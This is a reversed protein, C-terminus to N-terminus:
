LGLIRSIDNFFTLLLLSGIIFLGVYQFRIHWEIPISSGKLKEVALMLLHWGDLLPIPLFQMVGLNLSIFGMFWLFNISDQNSAVTFMMSGIGVAGNLAGLKVDGRVLGRIIAFISSSFRMVDDWATGLARGFETEQYLYVASRMEHYVYPSSGPVTLRTEEPKEQKWDTKWALKGSNWIEANPEDPQFGIVFNGSRLGAKYIESNEDIRTVTRKLGVALGIMLVDTKENQEPTVELKLPQGDRILHFILRRGASGRIINVFTDADNVEVPAPHEPHDPDEISILLDDKLIGAREASGKPVCENAMLVDHTEFGLPVDQEYKYKELGIGSAGLRKEYRPRVLVDDVNGRMQGANREVKLWIEEDSPTGSALIAVEIFSKVPVHNVSILKDGKQLHAPNRSQDLIAKALPTDPPVNGLQPPDFYIGHYYCVTFAFIAFIINFIAGAALIAAKQGPRKNRYDSKDATPALDANMDDQGSMKVYGGIPLMSLVYVTGRWSFSFLYPGMGLSFVQVRVGNWKALVFHGLEHIFILASFGVLMYLLNGLNGLM